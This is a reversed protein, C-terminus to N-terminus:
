NRTPYIGVLCMCFNTVSSPQMNNHAASGGATSVTAAALPVPTGTALAYFQQDGVTPTTGLSPESLYRGVGGPVAGVTTSAYPTHNHAPIQNSTLAVGEVGGVVGATVGLNPRCMPVRGRLDPLNFATTNGGFQNGLLSYLAQNQTVTLSRGDCFAWGRPAFNFSFMRIESLFPESM